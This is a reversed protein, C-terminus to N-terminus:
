DSGISLAIIQIGDDGFSAVLAYMDGGIAATTVAYAGDLATFGGEEDSVASVATPSAPDTIDIIQIGDDDFSAVLAYTSDGIVTTTIGRAGDLETFGNEEDSVASVATPSAPDTIDIIQIGDDDFSAVLAYTSSGIAVTTVAYAGDLKTFDNEGDFVASVAAPSTPDTIDIIQIGDDFYSAALAYTSGGIVATTIGRAGDLATFGNEEDSVASVAAPSAPNTIDIIQIGDDFYSAALAYTSGGIVATTIGRAGDLATFGNEEDSVASVAAPSAPRTIDVVQISDDNSGAVLAYTSDGIVATTIGRAGDLATFGNEEDFVASVAAPSAPRTIDVVQISDDNSGAVLAYTSDGIVATTIGRAGDLATFGNKEDSAASVPTPSTDDLAALSFASSACWETPHVTGLYFNDFHATQRHDVIWADRLTLQVTISDHGAVADTVDLAFTQWETDLTGGRNLWNKSLSNGDDDLIELRANTVSSHASNATARYDVGVFLDDGNLASLDVSRQIGASTPFGDGSIKVSPSPRGNQSDIDFRYNGFPDYGTDTPDIVNFSTWPGVRDFSDAITVFGPPSADTGGANPRPITATVVAGKGGDLADDSMVFQMLITVTQGLHEADFDSDEFSFAATVNFAEGAKIGSPVNLSVINQSPCSPHLSLESIRFTPVAPPSKATVIEFDVFEFVAERHQAPVTWNREQLKKATDPYVCAPRGSPSEVLTRAGTCQIEDIPTGRSFQQYPPLITESEAPTLPIMGLGVALVVFPLLMIVKSM